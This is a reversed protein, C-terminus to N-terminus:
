PQPELKAVAEACRALLQERRKPNAYRGHQEAWERTQEILKRLAAVADPKRAIAGLLIPSTHAFTNTSVCRAAVWGPGTFPASAPLTSDGKAIVEGDAILELTASPASHRLSASALSGDVTIDLLPGTTAFTSRNRVADIWTQGHASLAYTRMAGLATKNSDKGSGGVLPVLVGANWLRYLWPLLPVKRSTDTVEIADIKGLIAAVLAEGGILGGAPEFADIWVTLGNKRHCQDCWDCVGWDDTEEGGFTLPFVPRHSHLLAVKGLVPHTNLTNVIVAHGDRELAPQQGSFALLNPVTSYATGDLSPFPQVIALLNVVDLDEAMAELLAAHPPLFHCRSDVRVWGDTRMDITREIAFRLAMQGAGLTVTEDLPTYEPGKTAQVRLPVGAPLTIECAGDIYFWRERGLALQGGVVENRGIPFEISRGLPAFQTGDPGSIRLRVPTPQKTASDNIRLHITLM